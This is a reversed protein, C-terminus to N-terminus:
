ESEGKEYVQVYTCLPVYMDFTVCEESPSLLVADGNILVCIVFTVCEESPSSLVADGNLLLKSSTTM